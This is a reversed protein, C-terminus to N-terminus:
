LHLSRLAQMVPTQLLLLLLLLRWGHHHKGRTPCL